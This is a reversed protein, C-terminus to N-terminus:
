WMSTMLANAASPHVPETTQSGTTKARTSSAAAPEHASTSRGASRAFRRTRCVGESAAKVATWSVHVHREWRESVVAGSKVDRRPAPAKIRIAQAAIRHRREDVTEFARHAGGVPHQDRRRCRAIPGRGRCLRASTPTSRIRRHRRIRWTAWDAGVDALELVRGEIDHKSEHELHRDAPPGRRDRADETRRRRGAASASHRGGHSSARLERRHGKMATLRTASTAWVRERGLVPGLEACAPARPAAAQVAVSAM